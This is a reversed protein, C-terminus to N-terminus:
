TIFLNDVVVKISWNCLIKEQLYYSFYFLSAQVGSANCHIHTILLYTANFVYKCQIAIQLLSSAKNWSERGNICSFRLKARKHQVNAIRSSVLIQRLKTTKHKILTAWKIFFHFLQEYQQYIKLYQRLKTDVFPSYLELIWYSRICRDVRNRICGMTDLVEPSM